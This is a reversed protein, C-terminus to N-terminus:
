LLPLMRNLLAKERGKRTNRPGSFRARLRLARLFPFPFSFRLINFLSHRIRFPELLTPQPPILVFPM